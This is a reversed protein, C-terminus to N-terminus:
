PLEENYAFQHLQRLGAGLVSTEIETWRNILL